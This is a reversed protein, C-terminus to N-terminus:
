YVAPSQTGYKGRDPFETRFRPPDVIASIIAIVVILALVIYGAIVLWDQLTWRRPNWAM